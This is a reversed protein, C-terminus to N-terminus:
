SHVHITGLLQREEPKPGFLGAMGVHFARGEEVEEFEVRKVVSDFPVNSYELTVKFIRAKEDGLKIVILESDPYLGLCAANIIQKRMKSFLQDLTDAVRTITCGGM